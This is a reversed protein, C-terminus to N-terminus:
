DLCESQCLVPGAVDISEDFALTRIIKPPANSIPALRTALLARASIEIDVMLRALVDDFLALDQTSFQAAGIVFLDTVHRLMEARRGASGNALADQVRGMLALNVTM